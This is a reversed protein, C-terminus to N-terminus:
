DPPYEYSGIKLNNLLPYYNHNSTYIDVKKNISNNHYKIHIMKFIFRKEESHFVIVINWDLKHNLYIQHQCIITENHENNIHQKIRTKLLRKTGDIYCAECQKYFFKYVISTRNMTNVIDKGLKVVSSLNKNIILITSIDYTKLTLSLKIKIKSYIHQQYLKIHEYLIISVTIM